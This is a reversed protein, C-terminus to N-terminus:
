LGQQRVFLTRFYVRRDAQMFVALGNEVTVKQLVQTMGFVEEDDSGADRAHHHRNEGQRRQLRHELDDPVLEGRLFANGGPLYSLFVMHYFFVIAYATHGIGLFELIQCKWFTSDVWLKQGLQEVDCWRRDRDAVIFHEDLMEIRLAQHSRQVQMYIGGVILSQFLSQVFVAVCDLLESCGINERAVHQQLVKANRAVAPDHEVVVVLNAVEGVHVKACNWLRCGNLFFHSRFRPVGNACGVDKGLLKAAKQEASGSDLLQEVLHM